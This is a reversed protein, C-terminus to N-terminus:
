ETMRITVAGNWSPNWGTEGDEGGVVYDALPTGYHENARPETIYFPILAVVWARHDSSHLPQDKDTIIPLFMVCDEPVFGAACGDVGRVDFRAPGAKDGTDFYYFEGVGRGVNSNQDALGKYASPHIGCTEIQPGHIKFAKGVADPNLRNNAQDWIDMRGGSVLRADEACPLFPGDSFGTVRRVGAGASASTSVTDPGGPVVRIFLTDHTESVAVRVGTAGSPVAGACSGMSSGADDVYTCTISTISGMNMQNANVVAAVDAGASLPASPNSKAVIRAGAYAGADAAAQMTRRQSFAVGLDISLGLAGLLAVLMFAFMVLIQGPQAGNQDQLHVLRILKARTSQDVSVM